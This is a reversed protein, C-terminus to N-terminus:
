FLHGWVELYRDDVSAVSLQDALGANVLQEAVEEVTFAAHLSAVYDRQLVDPADRLYRDKLAHVDEESVPRRLDKIYIVAGPMGLARVSQWLVAPDHLHHLLSNSIVASYDRDLSCDPLVVQRFNVRACLDSCEARAEEALALMVSAGDFGVVDAALFHRALRFSINGPGCGLDAIREGLGAPFLAQVRDILAQDGASFDASAYALAQEQGNMLEPEPIRKM